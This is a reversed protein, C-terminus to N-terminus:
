FENNHAFSIKMKKKNTKKIVHYIWSTHNCIESLQVYIIKYVRTWYLYTDKKISNVM